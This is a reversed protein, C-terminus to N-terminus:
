KPFGFWKKTFRRWAASLHGHHQYGRGAHLSVTHDRHKPTKVAKILRQIM